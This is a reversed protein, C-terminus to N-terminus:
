FSRVWKKTASLCLNSSQYRNGALVSEFRAGEAVRVDRRM